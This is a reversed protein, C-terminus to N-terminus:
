RSAPALTALQPLPTVVRDVERIFRANGHVGAPLDMIRGEPVNM